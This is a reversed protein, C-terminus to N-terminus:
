KTAELVNHSLNIRYCHTLFDDLSRTLLNTYRHDIIGTIASQCIRQTIQRWLTTYACINDNSSQSVGQFQIKLLTYM